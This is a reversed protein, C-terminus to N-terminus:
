LCLVAPSPGTRGCGQLEALFGLDWGLTKLAMCRSSREVTVISLTVDRAEQRPFFGPPHWGVAEEPLRQQSIRPRLFLGDLGGAASTARCPGQPVHSQFNACAGVKHPPIVM